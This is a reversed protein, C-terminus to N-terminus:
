PAPRSRRSRRPPLGLLDDWSSARPARRILEELNELSSVEDVAAKAHPGPVGLYDQGILLLVKKAEQIAGKQLGEEVIAQYTTSEEMAIVGRLLHDILQREYRLGMLV